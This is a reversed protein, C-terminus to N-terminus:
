TARASAQVGIERRQSFRIKPRSLDPPGPVIANRAGGSASCDATQGTGRHAGSSNPTAPSRMVSAARCDTDGATMACHQRPANTMGLTVPAIRQHGTGARPQMLVAIGGVQMRNRVTATM